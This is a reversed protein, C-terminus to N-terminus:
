PKWRYLYNSRPDLHFGMKEIMECAKPFQTDAEAYLFRVGMAKAEALGEHIARILAVKVGLSKGLYDRGKDTVDLFAIWRGKMLALGGLAVAEGDIEGIWAKATPWKVVSSFALIDARSAPRRVVQGATNTKEGAM